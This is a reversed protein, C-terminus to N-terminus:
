LSHIKNKNTQLINLIKWRRKVKWTYFLFEIHIDEVKEDYIQQQQKKKSERQTSIHDMKYLRLFFRKKLEQKQFYHFFSVFKVLGFLICQFKTIKIFLKKKLNNQKIKFEVHFQFQTFLFCHVSFGNIPM